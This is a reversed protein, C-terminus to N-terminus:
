WPSLRVTRVEDYTNEASQTNPLDPTSYRHHTHSRQHVININSSQEAVRQSAHDCQNVAVAEKCEPLIQLYTDKNHM